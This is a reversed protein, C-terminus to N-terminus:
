RGDLQNYGRLEKGNVQLRGCREVELFSEGHELGDNQRQQDKQREGNGEPFDSTNCAKKLRDDTWTTSLGEGDGRPQHGGLFSLFKDALVSIATRVAVALTVMPAVTDALTVPEYTVAM